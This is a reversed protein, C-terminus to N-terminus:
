VWSVQPREEDAGSKGRMRDPAIPVLEAQVGEGHADVLRVDVADECWADLVRGCRCSLPLESWRMDKVSSNRWSVMPMTWARSASDISATAVPSARTRASSPRSNM